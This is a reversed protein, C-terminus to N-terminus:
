EEKFLRNLHKIEPWHVHSSTLNVVSIASFNKRRVHFRDSVEVGKM